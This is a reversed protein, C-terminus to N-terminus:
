NAFVLKQYHIILVCQVYNPAHKIVNGDHWTNLVLLNKHGNHVKEKRQFVKNLCCSCLGDMQIRQFILLKIAKSSNERQTDRENEQRKM